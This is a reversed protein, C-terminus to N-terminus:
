GGRSAPVGTPRAPAPDIPTTSRQVDAPTMAWQRTVTETYRGHLTRATHLRMWLEVRCSNDRYIESRECCVDCIMQVTLVPADPAVEIRWHAFRAAVGALQTV